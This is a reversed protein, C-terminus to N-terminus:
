AKLRQLMVPQQAQAQQAAQLQAAIEQPTPVKKPVFPNHIDTM